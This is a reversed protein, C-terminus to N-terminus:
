AAAGAYAYAKRDWACFLSYREGSTISTVGHVVASNHGMGCGVARQPHMIADGLALLLQGGVFGENLPVHVIALSHDRHFAVREAPDAARRRLILRPASAALAQQDPGVLASCMGVVDAVSVPGILRALVSRSVELKFDSLVGSRGRPTSESCGLQTLGLQTYDMLAKCQTASLLGPRRDVRAETAPVASPGLAGRVIEGIEGAAVPLGSLLRDAPSDLTASAAWVGIDQEVMVDIVDNDEMDLEAPTHEENIRDGDFLFRVDSQAVGQRECFARMLRSLPNSRRVRFFVETGDLAWVVKLNLPSPVAVPQGVAPPVNAAPINAEPPSVINAYAQDICSSCLDYDCGGVCRWM